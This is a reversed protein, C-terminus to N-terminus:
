PKSPRETAVNPDPGISTVSPNSAASTLLAWDAMWTAAAASRSRGTPSRRSRIADAVATWHTLLGHLKLAKM